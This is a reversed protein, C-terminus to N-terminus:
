VSHVNRAVRVHVYSNKVIDGALTEPLTRLWRSVIDCVGVFLRERTAITPSTVCALSYPRAQAREHHTQNQNM